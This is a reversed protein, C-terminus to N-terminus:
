MVTQMATQMAAGARPAVARIGGAKAAGQLGALVPADRVAGGPSGWAPFALRPRCRILNARSPRDVPAPGATAGGAKSAPERARIDVLVVAPVVVVVAARVSAVAQDPHAVIRGFDMQVMVRRVPHRMTFATAANSARRVSKM